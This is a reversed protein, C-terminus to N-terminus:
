KRRTFLFGLGGVALILVAGAITFYMWLSRSQVRIQGDRSVAEINSGTTDALLFQEFQIQSSAPKIARVLVRAIVGSGKGPLSPPLQTVAYDLAGTTNDAQNQVVFDPAPLTGPEIQVGDAAPEADIVELVKPDYRLHIEIGYLDDVQAVTIDVTTSEGVKLQTVQPSIQLSAQSQDAQLTFGVLAVASLAICICVCWSGRAKM